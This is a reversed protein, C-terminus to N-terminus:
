LQALGTDSRASRMLCTNLNLICMDLSSPATSPSCLLYWLSCFAGWPEELALGQRSRVVPCCCGWCLELSPLESLQVGLSENRGKINNNITKLKLIFMNASSFWPSFVQSKLKVPVLYSNAFNWSWTKNLNLLFDEAFQAGAPNIM